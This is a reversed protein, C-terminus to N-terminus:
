AHDGPGLALLEVVQGALTALSGDALYRGLLEPEDTLIRQAVPDSWAARVTRVIVEVFTDASIGQAALEVLEDLFRHFRRSSMLAMAEEISAVQRYLTTRAVGMSTKGHM